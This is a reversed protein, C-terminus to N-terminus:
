NKQGRDNVSGSSFNIHREALFPAWPPEYLNVNSSGHLRVQTFRPQLDCSRQGQRLYPPTFLRFPALITSYFHIPTLNFVPPPFDM